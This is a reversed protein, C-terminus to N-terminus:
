AQGHRRNQRIVVRAVQQSEKRISHHAAVLEAVARERLPQELLRLDDDFLEVPRVVLIVREALRVHVWVFAGREPRALVGDGGLLRTDRRQGRGSLGSM